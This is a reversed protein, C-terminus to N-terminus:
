QKKEQESLPFFQINVQYVQQPDKQTEAFSLLEKWFSELRKKIAAYGHPTIGLTAGRIDRDHPGFREIAEKGLTILSKHYRAVAVSLVEAPTSVVVDTQEYHNGVHEILKLKKLLSVAKSAKSESIAPIIREAIWRPTGDFAPHTVLERVVPIYWHTFYHYQERTLTKINRYERSTLIERFHADKDEHKKAHDFAVITNFYAAEKKKLHLANSIHSVAAPSINLKRDRILQLYNPSSSGAMKAFARYSFKSNQEKLEEFVDALYHRYD